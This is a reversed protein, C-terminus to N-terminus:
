TKIQCSSSLFRTKRKFSFGKKEDLIEISSWVKQNSYRNLFKITKMEASSAENRKACKRGKREFHKPIENQRNIAPIKQLRACCFENKSCFM